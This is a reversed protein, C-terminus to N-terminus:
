FFIIYIYIYVCIYIYIRIYYIYIYMHGLWWSCGGPGSLPGFSQEDPYQGQLCHCSLARLWHIGFIHFSESWRHGDGVLSSPAGSVSQSTRSADKVVAEVLFVITVYWM